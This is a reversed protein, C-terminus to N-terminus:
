VKQRTEETAAEAALEQYKKVVNLLAVRVDPDATRLALESCREAQKLFYQASRPKM